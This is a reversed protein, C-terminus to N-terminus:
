WWGCLGVSVVGPRRTRRGRRDNTCVCLGNLIRSTLHGGPLVKGMMGEILESTNGPHSVLHTPAVRHRNNPCNARHLCM